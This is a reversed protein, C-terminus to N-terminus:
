SPTPPSATLFARLNKVRGGATDPTRFQRLRYEELYLECLVQFAVGRAESVLRPRYAALREDLLRQADAIDRSRTSERYERGTHSYAIFFPGEPNETPSRTSIHWSRAVADLAERAGRPAKPAGPGRTASAAQLEYRWCATAQQSALWRTSVICGVALLDDTCSV